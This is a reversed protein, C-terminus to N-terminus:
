IVYQVGIADLLRLIPPSELKNSGTTDLKENPWQNTEKDQDTALFGRDGESTSARRGRQHIFWHLRNFLNRYLLGVILARDGNTWVFGMFVARVREITQGIGVAPRLM